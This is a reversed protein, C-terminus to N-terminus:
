LRPVSLLASCRHHFRSRRGTRLRVWIRLTARATKKGYAGGRMRRGLKRRRCHRRWGCSLRRCWDIRESTFSVMACHHAEQLVVFTLVECSGSTVQLQLKAQLLEASHTTETTKAASNLLSDKKEPSTVTPRLRHLLQHGRRDPELPRRAAFGSDEKRLASDSEPTRRLGLLRDASPSIGSRRFCVMVPLTLPLVRNV